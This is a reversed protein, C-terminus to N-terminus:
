PATRARRLVIWRGALVGLACALLPLAGLRAAVLFIAAFPVFRALQFAAAKGARGQAYFETIRRLTTFHFLGLLVGAALALASQLAPSLALLASM